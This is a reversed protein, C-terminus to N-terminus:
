NGKNVEIIITLNGRDRTEKDIFGAGNVHYILRDATTEPSVNVIHTQGDFNEIQVDRGVKAEHTNITRRIVISSDLRSFDKSQDEYLTVRVRRKTSHDLFEIKTGPITKEPVRFKIIHGGQGEIFVGATAVCGYLFDVLSLRVETEVTEADFNGKVLLEYATQINEFHNRDGGQDPHHIKAERVYARRIAMKDDTPDINLIDYPNM